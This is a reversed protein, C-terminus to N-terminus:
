GVAADCGGGLPRRVVVARDRACRWCRTRRTPSRCRSPYSPGRASSRCCTRCTWWCRTAPRSPCSRLGRVIGRVAEIPPLDGLDGSRALAACAAGYLQHLQARSVERAPDGLRDLLDVLADADGALLQGVSRVVGLQAVLDLAAPPLPGVVDYLGTLLPEADPARLSGPRALGGDATPV